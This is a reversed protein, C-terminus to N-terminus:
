SRASRGGTGGDHPAPAPRASAPSPAPRVRDLAAAVNVAVVVLGTAAVLPAWPGGPLWRAGAVLGVLAYNLVGAAHGLRSRARAGGQRRAAIAYATVSAAIAVPVAPSVLGLAAGSTTGALVFAVDAVVDLLAGHRTPTTRRAVIGDFFDTAAAVAFLGVASADPAPRAVAAPFLAAAALRVVGLADAARSM